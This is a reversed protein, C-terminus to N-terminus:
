SVYNKVLLYLLLEYNKVFLYKAQKCINFIGKTLFEYLIGVEQMVEREKYKIYPYPDPLTQAPNFDNSYVSERIKNPPQKHKTLNVDNDSYLPQAKRQQALKKYDNKNLRSKPEKKTKKM